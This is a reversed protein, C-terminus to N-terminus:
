HRIKEEDLVDHGRGVVHGHDRAALELGHLIEVLVQVRDEVYLDVGVKVLLLPGFVRLVKCLGERQETLLTVILNAAVRITDSERLQVVQEFVTHDGQGLLNFIIALVFNVGHVNLIMNLGQCGGSFLGDCNFLRLGFGVLITSAVSLRTAFVAAASAVVFMTALPATASTIPLVLTAAASAVVLRRAFVMFAKDSFRALFWLGSASTVVSTAVSPVSLISTVPAVSASAPLSAVVPVALARPAAPRVLFFGGLRYM